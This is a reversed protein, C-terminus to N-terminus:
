EPNSHKSGGSVHKDELEQRIRTELAEMDAKVEEAEQSLAETLRHGCVRRLMEM